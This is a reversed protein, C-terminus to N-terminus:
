LSGSDGFSPGGFESDSASSDEKKIEKITDKVFQVLFDIIDDDEFDASAEQYLEAIAQKLSAKSTGDLSVKIKTIISSELLTRLRKLKEKLEKQM